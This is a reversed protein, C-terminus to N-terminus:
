NHNIMRRKVGFGYKSGGGTSTSTPQHEWMILDQSVLGIGKAYRDQAYVTSYFSNPDNNPTDTSENVIDVTLVDSIVQSNIHMTDGINTYTYNWDSIGYDTGLNFREQYYGTPLYHNGHWTENLKVPYILRITRMNEEIVETTTSTPTIYYTGASSWPQTGDVDRLFRFIRYSPRGLNDMFLSDVVDKQQYSHVETTQNFNTFV